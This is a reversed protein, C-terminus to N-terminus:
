KRLGETITDLKIKLNSKGKQLHTKVDKLSYKTKEAIEACTMKQQYFLEICIRQEKDLATIAVELQTQIKEEELFRSLTDEQEQSENTIFENNVVAVAKKQLMLCHNKTVQFLWPKLQAIQYKHVDELLKIFIQQTAEKAAESDKLYKKCVGLVLHGYRDFLFHISLHDNRHIFRHLLEEDSLKRYDAQSVQLKTKV